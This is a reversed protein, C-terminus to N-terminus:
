EDSMMRTINGMALNLQDRLRQLDEKTLFSLDVSYSAMQDKKLNYQQLFLRPDDLSSPWSIRYSAKWIAEAKAKGTLASGSM